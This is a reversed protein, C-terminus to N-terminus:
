GLLLLLTIFLGLIGWIMCWFAILHWLLSQELISSGLTEVDKTLDQMFSNKKNKELVDSLASINERIRAHDLQLENIDTYGKGYAFVVSNEGICTNEAGYIVVISTKNSGTHSMNDNSLKTEKNM